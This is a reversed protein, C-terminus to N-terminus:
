KGAGKADDLWRQLFERKQESRRTIEFTDLALHIVVKFMSNGRVKGRMLRKGSVQM